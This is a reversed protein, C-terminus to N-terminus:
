AAVFMETDMFTINANGCDDSATIFVMIKLDQAYDDCSVTVSVPADDLDSGHHREVLRAADPHLLQRLCRPTSATMTTADPDNGGAGQRTTTTVWSITIASSATCNDTASATGYQTNANYSACNITVYNM